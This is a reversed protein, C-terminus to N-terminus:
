VAVLFMVHSASGGGLRRCLSRPSSTCYMSPGTPDPLDVAHMISISMRAKLCCGSSCFTRLVRQAMTRLVYGSSLVVVILVHCSHTGFLTAGITYKIGMWYM